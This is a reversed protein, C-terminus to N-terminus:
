TWNSEFTLFSWLNQRYADLTARNVITMSYDWPMKPVIGTLETAMTFFSM